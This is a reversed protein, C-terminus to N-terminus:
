SPILLLVIDIGLGGLVLFLSIWPYTRSQRTAWAEVEAIDATRETEGGQFRAAVDDGRPSDWTPEVRIIEAAVAIREPPFGRDRLLERPGDSDVAVPRGDRLSEYVAIREPYAFAGLLSLLLLCAGAGKPGIAVWQFRRRL